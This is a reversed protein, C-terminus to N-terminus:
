IIHSISYFISIFCEKLINLEIYETKRPDAGFEKNYKM